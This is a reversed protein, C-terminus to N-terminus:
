FIDRHMTRHIDLVQFLKKNSNIIVASYVTMNEPLLQVKEYYSTHSQYNSTNKCTVTLIAMSLWVCSGYHIIRITFSQSYNHSNVNVPITHTKDNKELLSKSVFM